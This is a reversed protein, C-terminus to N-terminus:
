LALWALKPLKFLGVPVSTLENASLRVLELQKCQVFSEPIANLKNGALALKKLQSLQGFSQPLQTLRNDTLILWRLNKPLATESILEIQNSKFGVM